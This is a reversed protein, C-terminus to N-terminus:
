CQAAEGSSCLRHPGKGRSRIVKGLGWRIGDNQVRTLWFPTCVIGCQLATHHLSPHPSALNGGQEIVPYLTAFLTQKWSSSMYKKLLVLIHAQNCAARAKTMSLSPGVGSKHPPFPLSVNGKEESTKATEETPVKEKGRAHVGLTNGCIHEPTPTWIEGTSHGM